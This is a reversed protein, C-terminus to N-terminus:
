SALETRFRLTNPYAAGSIPVTVISITRESKPKLSWKFVTRTHGKKIPKLVVLRGDVLFVGSTYPTDATLDLSVKAAFTTTNKAQVTYRYVVGYNGNLARGGGEQPIGEVGIDRTISRDGVALSVQDTVNPSLYRLPPYRPPPMSAVSLPEPGVEDYPTKSLLAMEWARSMERRYEGLAVFELKDPGGDLLKLSCLGSMVDGLVMKRFAIVRATHPPVEIVEGSGTLWAPLYGEAASTGALVPERNPRADGPVVLIRAAVDNPNRIEARMVMPETSKCTHHYLLRVPKGAMLQATYLTGERKINEPKNDFWLVSEEGLSAGINSVKVRVVGESTMGSSDSVRVPVHVVISSGPFLQQTSFNGITWTAGSPGQFHTDIAGQVANAVTSMLAPQGAVEAEFTQSFDAAQRRTIGLASLSLLIGVFGLLSLWRLAMFPTISGLHSVLEKVKLASIQTPVKNIENLGPPKPSHRDSAALYVIPM